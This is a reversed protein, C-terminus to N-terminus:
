RAAIADERPAGAVPGQTVPTSGTGAMEDLGPATMASPSGPGTWDLDGKAWVFAFGGMLVVLFTAVEVFALWGNGERVMDRFVAAWPFLLAIEIDFVVFMLAVTYFRIDFRIWAQGITPEGCEYIARKEGSQPGKPRLFWAVALNVLIFGLGVVIFVLINAFDFFM